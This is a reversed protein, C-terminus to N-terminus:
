AIHLNLGAQTQKKSILDFLTHSVDNIQIWQCNIIKSLGLFRIDFTANSRFIKASM